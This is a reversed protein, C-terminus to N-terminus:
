RALRLPMLCVKFSQGTRAAGAALCCCTLAKRRASSTSHLRLSKTTAVSGFCNHFERRLRQADEFGQGNGSTQNVVLLASAIGPLKGTRM